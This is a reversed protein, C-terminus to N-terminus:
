ERDTLLDDDTLGLNETAEYLDPLTKNKLNKGKTGVWDKVEGANDHIWRRNETGSKPSTLMSVIVGGAFSAAALLIVQSISFRNM